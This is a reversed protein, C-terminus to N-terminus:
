FIRYGLILSYRQYVTEWYSYNYLLQRNSYYRMEASVKKYGIGGGFAFSNGTRVELDSITSNFDLSISTIFLANVFVNLKENLFFKHRLGIPFEICKYNIDITESGRKGSANFYQYGPEFVIGWKNKNFPLIYEAEAGIRFSLQDSFDTYLYPSNGNSVSVWSYNLGPTIRVHFPIQKKKEIFADTQLGEGENYKKFYRELDDKTLRLNEVSNLGANTYRVDNWLQERFKFNEAVQDNEVYYQKYVLQNISTDSVSYFFRILKGKEYYYLKAKGDVLVKLFLREQLWQPNRDKSLSSLDAASIDIKVDASVYRTFGTIGFEKVSSLTGKKVIGDVDLKYDFQVPNSKWDVNKILCNVRQNNNDIFYGSEFNIQGSACSALIFFLAFLKSKM